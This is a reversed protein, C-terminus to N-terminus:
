KVKKVRKKRFIAFSTTGLSLVAVAAITSVFLVKNNYWQAFRNTTVLFKEVNVITERGSADKAVIQVNQPENSEAVDFVYISGEVAYEVESDNLTIWVNELLLNDKIEVSVKKGEQHYQKGSELDIPLVVPETKDIAFYIEAEKVEDVNENVNEAEDVSYVVISYNGDEAFLEKYVTYTYVSWSNEGDSDDDLKYHENEVLTMPTGNKTLKLIIEERDLKVNTETFVIDQEAQHYKGIIDKLGSINYVSGYRNVFFKVPQSTTINGAMDTVEATLIYVDDVSKIYEFDEFTYKLGNVVNAPKDYKYEVKGNNVGTLTFTVTDNKLNIDTFEVIPKVEGNYSEGDVVGTIEISPATKDIYFEEAIYDDIVNGAKDNFEIDFSYKSDVDYVITATHSDDGNDRWISAFPFTSPVGDDTAVGVINVRSPDFNHERITVSAIRDDKYYNGNESDDNNYVVSVVPKTMDITFAQQQIKNAERAVADKYSIDFTYDGDAVYEVIAVHTTEDPNSSNEFTTWSSAMKLDTAPFVNDTNTIEYAIDSARFNREKVTITATRKTSYCDIYESDHVEGSGYAISITPDVKDISLKISETSKNGAQDTMTVTVTIDNSNHTVPITKKMETVLNNDKSIGWGELNSTGVDVSESYNKGTDYPAIANCDVKWIGSFTDIVTVTVSVNDAYLPTGDIARYSTGGIELKIHDERNHMDQSEIIIGSPTVFKEAENKVNDEPKAYIQGKFDAPVIFSISGDEGVGSTIKESIVGNELDNSYDVTYYTISKVGASPLKDSVSSITDGAYIIVETDEKFYFGYDTAVVTTEDEQTFFEEKNGDILGIPKFDIKAIYPSDIDKYIKKEYNKVNGANDTVSVNLTYSGDQAREFAATSVSYSTTNICEDEFVVTNEEYPTGNITIKVNRIGSNEDGVTIEFEVDDAYWDCVENTNSNIATYVPEDVDVSITPEVTEIMLWDSGKINSNETTPKVANETIHGVKDKAIASINGAYLSDFTSKPMTFIAKNDDEVNETYSDVQNGEADTLTLTISDVGASAGEDNATAVIQVKEKSFIGFNLINGITEGLSNKRLTIDFYEIGPAKRDIYIVKESQSTTGAASTAIVEIKNEGDKSFQSTNIVFSEETDKADGVSFDEAWSEGNSEKTLETDNLYIKVNKLGTVNDTVNITFEVDKDYWHKDNDEYSADAAPTIIFEAEDSAIQVKDSEIPSDTTVTPAAKQSENGAKDIAIAYIEVADHFKEETLEFIAEGAEDADRTVFPETEEGCYLAIQSVGATADEAKVKVYMSENYITGYKTYNIEGDSNAGSGFEFATVYPDEKDILVSVEMKGINNCYDTAWVYYIGNYAAEVSFSYTGDNLEIVVADTGDPQIGYKVEKLGSKDDTVTFSYTTKENFWKNNNEDASRIEPADADCRIDLAVPNHWGGLLTRTSVEISKIANINETGISLTVNEGAHKKDQDDKIRVRKYGDGPSFKVRTEKPVYTVSGVVKPIVEEGAVDEYTINYANDIAETKESFTVVIEQNDSEIVTGETRYVDGETADNIQLVGVRIEDVDYGDNPMAEVYIKDGHNIVIPGEVFNINDKSIKVTGNTVEAVTVTYVNIAFEVEFTHNQNMEVSYVNQPDLEQAQGDISVTSVHYGNNPKPIINVKTVNGEETYEEFAISGNEVNIANNEGGNGDGAGDDVTYTVEGNEGINFTITYTMKYFSATIHCDTRIDNLTFNFSQQPEGDAVGDGDEDYTFKVDEGVIVDKIRYGLAATITIEKDSGFNVEEGVSNISIEGGTGAEATIMCTNFPLQIDKTTDESYSVSVAEEFLKYKENDPTVTIKYEKGAYVEISYGGNEDTEAETMTYGSASVTAGVCPVDDAGTVVGSVTVKEIANMVVIGSTVGTSATITTSNANYGVPAAVSVTYTADEEVFSSFTAVGAITNATQTKEADDQNTLTVTVDDLELPTTGDTLQITFSEVGAALVSTFTSLPLMNVIMAFALVGALIKFRRRSSM